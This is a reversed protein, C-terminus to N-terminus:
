RLFNKLQKKTFELPTQNDISTHHRKTNYYYIAEKVLEELKEFTEAEFFIDRGSKRLAEYLDFKVKVKEQYIM